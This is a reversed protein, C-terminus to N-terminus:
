KKLEESSYCQRKDVTCANSNVSCLLSFQTSFFNVTWTRWADQLSWLINCINWIAPQAEVEALLSCRFFIYWRIYSCTSGSYHLPYVVTPGHSKTTASVMNTQSRTRVKNLVKRWWTSILCSFFHMTISYIFITDWRMYLNYVLYWKQYRNVTRLQLICCQIFVQRATFRPNIGLKIM